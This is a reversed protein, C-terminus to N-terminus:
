HGAARHRSSVPGAIHAAAHAAGCINSVLVWVDMSTWTDTITATATSDIPHSRDPYTGIYWQFAQPQGGDTGVTLTATGFASFTTNAPPAVIVPICDSLADIQQMITASNSGSFGDGGLYLATLTHVGRTLTYVTLSATQDPGVNAIGLANDGDMFNVTGQPFGSAALVTARLVVPAGMMAPNASVTLATQTPVVAQVTETVTNSTSQYFNTSGSFAAYISHMGNSLSTELTAKGTGDLPVSGLPTGADFFTVTGMPLLGPAQVLATFTARKGAFVASSPGSLTTVTLAQAQRVEQTLPPSTDPGLAGSGGFFTTLVHSGPTLSYTTLTAVSGTLAVTGLSTVGDFFEVSGTPTGFGWGGGVRATVTVPSGFASPNQSTSLWTQTGALLRIAVDRGSSGGQYTIRFAFRQIFTAGEPLGQFTGSVPNPGDNRIITYTQGAFMTGVNIVLRSGGLSINGHVALYDPPQGWFTSFPDVAYQASPGTSRLSKWHEATSRQM